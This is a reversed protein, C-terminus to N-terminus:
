RIAGQLILRAAGPLDPARLVGDLGSLDAKPGYGTHVLIGTGGLAVAAEVDSRKDGVFYSRGPDLGLERSADMHMGTGPKRCACDGSVDPHHPCFFTGDLTVGASTLMEELRAAVARYDDLTFMGRAIGSQNTVLVVAFGARQLEAIAEAAGPILEVGDPDSLYDREVILTGDRDLFV